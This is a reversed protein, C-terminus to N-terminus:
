GYHRLKLDSVRDPGHRKFYHLAELDRPTPMVRLALRGGEHCLDNWYTWGMAFMPNTGASGMALISVHFKPGGLHLGLRAWGLYVCEGGRGTGLGAGLGVRLPGLAVTGPAVGSKLKGDWGPRATEGANCGRAM